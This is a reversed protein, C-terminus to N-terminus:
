VDESQMGDTQFIVPKGAPYISPLILLLNRQQRQIELCSFYSGSVVFM